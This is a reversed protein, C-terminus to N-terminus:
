SLRSCNSVWCLAAGEKRVMTLSAVAVRTCSQDRVVARCSELVGPTGERQERSGERCSRGPDEEGEAGADAATEVQCPKRARAWEREVEDM